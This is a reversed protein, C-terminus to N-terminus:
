RSGTYEWCATCCLVTDLEEVFCLRFAMPNMCGTGKFTVLYHHRVSSTLASWAGLAPEFAVSAAWAWALRTTSM